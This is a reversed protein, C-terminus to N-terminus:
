VVATELEFRRMGVVVCYKREAGMNRSPQVYALKTPVQKPLKVAAISEASGLQIPNV